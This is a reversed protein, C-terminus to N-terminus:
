PRGAGIHRVFPALNFQALVAVTDLCSNVVNSLVFDIVRYKGGFPLAPKPRGATLVSMARGPGGALILTLVTM